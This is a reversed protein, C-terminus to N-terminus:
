STPGGTQTAAPTLTPILSADDDGARDPVANDILAAIM